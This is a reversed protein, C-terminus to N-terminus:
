DPNKKKALFETENWRLIFDPVPPSSLGPAAAAFIEAPTVAGDKGVFTGKIFGVVAADGKRELRQELYIWKEDWCVIRTKLLYPDFLHMPRRYRVLTSGVVPTWKGENMAKQLPSRLILDFRGLDMVQLARGNNLHLFIDLDNPLVTMPLVSTELMGRKKGLCAALWIWFTRFMLNM